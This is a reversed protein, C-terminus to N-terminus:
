GPTVTHLVLAKLRTGDSLGYCNNKSASSKEAFFCMWAYEKMDTSPHKPNINAGSSALSCVKLVSLENTNM